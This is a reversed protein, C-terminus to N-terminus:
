HLKFRVNLSLRAGIEGQPLKDVQHTYQSQFTKGYMAVLSNHKMCVNYWQNDAKSRVRLWRTQGMSLILILGWDEENDSHKGISGGGVFEPCYLIDIANSLESRLCAPKQDAIKDLLLPIVKLIHSPYKKTNHAIGSYNYTHGDTTYCIEKRPKTSGFISAGSEREVKSAGALYEALDSENLVNNKLIVCNEDDLSFEGNIGSANLETIVEQNRFTPTYSDMPCLELILKEDM